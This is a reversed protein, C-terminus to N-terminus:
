DRTVETVVMTGNGPESIVKFKGGLSNARERMSILGWGTNHVSPSIANLDFGIGDDSISLRIRNEMKKISVVVNKAQAHKAINTLAEQVIRFLETEVALTLRQDYEKSQVVVQIGTRRVFRDGYWNVASALGYDDLGVPRLRSMVDRIHEATESVLSMSDNLIPDIKQKLAGPMHSKMLTLNLNLASLNQGVRDHLERAIEKRLEEEVEKLRRTLSRLQHESAKLALEAQDRARLVEREKIVRKLRIILESTRIPKAIFDRAGREAIQDFTYDKTYGTVVIVDVDFQEKAESALQIGDMGPMVIDTIMVDVPNERMLGIAQEANAAVLCEYGAFAVMQSIVTRMNLEDDVVLVQHKKQESTKM